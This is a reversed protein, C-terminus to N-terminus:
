HKVGAMAPYLKVLEAWDCALCLPRGEYDPVFCCGGCRPCFCKLFFLVEDKHAKLTELLPMAQHPDPEGSGEYRYRVKGAAVEFKFGMRSLNIVAEGPRM